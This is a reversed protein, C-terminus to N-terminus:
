MQATFPCIEGAEASTCKWLQTLPRLSLTRDLNQDSLLIGKRPIQVPARKAPFQSREVALATPALDLETLPLLVPNHYCLPDQTRFLSFFSQLGVSCSLYCHQQETTSVRPRSVLIM